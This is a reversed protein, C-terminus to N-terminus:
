KKGLRRIARLPKTVKWSLSSQVLALHNSINEKEEQLAQIRQELETVNQDRINLEHQLSELEQLQQRIQDQHALNAQHENDLLRALEALEQSKDMDGILANVQQGQWQPLWKDFLRARAECLPHGQRYRNATDETATDSEGGQRYFATIQDVHIFATHQNLQLWFDWDEYIDFAEDFRCGRAILDASFLMAHIPIYNDRMLLLPQYAERFVTELEQGRPDTKRTSSYAAQVDPNARLCAVLNAVHDSAIWDDEDLFMLLPGSAADLGANAAVPRSMAKGSNVIQLKDIASQIEPPAELGSGLADVLVLELAPYSQGVISDLAQQLEARGTSRCIISVTLNDQNKDAPM